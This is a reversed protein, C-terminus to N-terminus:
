LSKHALFGAKCLKFVNRFACTLSLRCRLMGAVKKTARLIWRLQLLVPYPWWFSYSQLVSNFLMRMLSSLPFAVLMFHLFLQKYRYRDHILSEPTVHIRFKGKSSSPYCIWCTISSKDTNNCNTNSLRRKVLSLSLSLSQPFTKVRTEEFCEMLVLSFLVHLFSSHFSFDIIWPGINEDPFFMSSAYLGPACNNARYPLLTSASCNIDVKIIFEPLAIKM